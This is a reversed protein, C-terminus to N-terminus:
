AGGENNNIKTILAGLDARESPALRGSRDKATYRADPQTQLWRVIEGEDNPAAHMACVIDVFYPLGQALRRGPMSPGFYMRGDNDEIRDQKCLLVVDIPLDRFARVIKTMQENLEGYAARGDRLATKAEALCVEAIESLSDVIITTYDSRRLAGFVSRLTALSDIEVVDIDLDAISLLGAEASLILTTSQDVTRALSTKGVGSPGHIAITTRGRALDGPKQIKLQTM